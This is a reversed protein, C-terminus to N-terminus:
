KNYQHVIIINFIIMNLNLENKIEIKNQTLQHLEFGMELNMIKNLNFKYISEHGHLLESTM